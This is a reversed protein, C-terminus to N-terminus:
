VTSPRFGANRRLVPSAPNEDIFQISSPSRVIRLEGSPAVLSHLNTTNQLEDGGRLPEWFWVKLTFVVGGSM